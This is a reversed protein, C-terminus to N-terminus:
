PFIIGTRESLEQKSIIDVRSNESNESWYAHSKGDPTQVLKFIHTPVTVGDGISPCPAKCQHAPGTIVYVPQPTRLAYKRTAKEVGAWLKRNHHPNQPVMNALSFSQAMATADPMDAAPAMHGRDFGSGQYDSLKARWATPLRAEEYFHDTRIEAQAQQVSARTLVEAVYIPTKTARNYVMAFADFCLPKTEAKTTISPAKQNLFFQPCAPASPSASYCSLSLLSAALATAARKISSHM